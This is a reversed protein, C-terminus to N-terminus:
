GYITEKAILERRIVVPDDGDLIFEGLAEDSWENITECIKGPMFHFERALADFDDLPWSERTLLRELIPHFAADLGNFRTAQPADKSGSSVKPIEPAPLKIKTPLKISEEPEDAMVVSLIAVVEKTENTIQYVREMDLAFARPPQATVPNSFQEASQGRKIWRDLRQDFIRKKIEGECDVCYSRVERSPSRSMFANEKACCKCFGYAGSSTKPIQESSAGLLRGAALFEEMASVNKRNIAGDAKTEGESSDAGPLNNFQKAVLREHLDRWRANLAKWDTFNWTKGALTDDDIVVGPHGTRWHNWLWKDNKSIDGYVKAARGNCIQYIYNELTVLPIAFAKFIRELARREDRTIENNAAAVQVLLHAIVLRKDAPVSKAIKAATQTASCLEQALLQELVLLRKHDTLTLGVQNEIVQRFLDLEVLDIKGDATTILICLRLLNAAGLYATSPQIPDGDLPKFLALTQNRDYTGNGFRADPEVCYGRSEITEAMQRCLDITIADSAFVYSLPRAPLWHGGPCTVNRETFGDLWEAFREIPAHYSYATPKQIRPNVVEQFTVEQRGADQSLPSKPYPQPEWDTNWNHQVYWSKIAAYYIEHRRRNEAEITKVEAIWNTKAKEYDYDFDLGSNFSQRRPERPYSIYKPRKPEKTLVKGVKGSPGASSEAYSQVDRAPITYERPNSTQPKSAEQITVEEARKREEFLNSWKSATSKEQLRAEEKQMAAAHATHWDYNKIQEGFHEAKPEPQNPPEPFPEPQKVAGGRRRANWENMEAVYRDYRRRNEAETQQFEVPLYPDLSYKLYLPPEPERERQDVEQTPSIQRNLRVVIEPDLPTVFRGCDPCWHQGNHEVINSKRCNSCLMAAPPSAAPQQADQERKFDTIQPETSQSKQHREILLKAIGVTINDDFTCGLLRLKEKQNESAPATRWDHREVTQPEPPLQGTKPVFFNKIQELWTTAEQFTLGKPPVKGFARIEAFQEPTPPIYVPTAPQDGVTDSQRAVQRGHSVSWNNWERESMKRADGYTLKHGPETGYSGHLGIWEHWETEGMQRAADYTLNKRSLFDRAQKAKDLVWRQWSPDQARGKRELYQQPTEDSGDPVQSEVSEAKSIPVEDSIAEDHQKSSTSINGPLMPSKITTVRRPLVHFSKQAQPNQAPATKVPTDRQPTAPFSGAVKSWKKKQFQWAAEKDPFDSACQLLADSAQGVNIDGSWSCGFYRLKETQKETAPQSKQWTAEAEPFQRACAELADEAQGATIGEDWTCGFFRLKEKQKETALENRWQDSM